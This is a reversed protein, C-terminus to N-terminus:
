ANITIGAFSAEASQNTQKEVIIRDLNRELRLFRSQFSTDEKFKRSLLQMTGCRDVDQANALTTGFFVVVLVIYSVRFKMYYLIVERCCITRFFRTTIM